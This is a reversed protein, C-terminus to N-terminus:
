LAQKEMQWPLYAHKIIQFLMRSHLYADFCTFIYCM